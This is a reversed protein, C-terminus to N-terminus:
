LFDIVVGLLPQRLGIKVFHILMKFVPVATFGTRPGSGYINLSKGWITTPIKVWNVLLLFNEQGALFFADKKM